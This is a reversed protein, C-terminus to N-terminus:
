LIIEMKWTINNWEKTRLITISQNTTKHNEFFVILKKKTEDNKIKPQGMWKTSGDM